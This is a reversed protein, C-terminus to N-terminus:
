KARKERHRKAMLKDKNTLEQSGGSMISKIADFKTTKVRNKANIHM